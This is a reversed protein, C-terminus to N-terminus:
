EVNWIERNGVFAKCMFCRGHKLMILRLKKFFQALFADCHNSSLKRLGKARQLYPQLIKESIIDISILKESLSPISRFLPKWISSKGSILSGLITSRAGCLRKRPSKRLKLHVSRQIVFCQSPSKLLKKSGNKSGGIEEQTKRRTAQLDPHTLTHASKM